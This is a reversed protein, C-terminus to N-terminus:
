PTVSHSTIALGSRRIIQMWAYRGADCPHERGNKLPRDEGLRAAREDWAYEEFAARTMPTERSPVLLGSSLATDVEAVGSLLANDAARAPLGLARLERRLEPAAPDVMVHTIGSPWRRSWDAIRQARVEPDLKLGAPKRWEGVMRWRQEGDETVDDDWAGFAVGFAVGSSADDVGIVVRRPHRDPLPEDPPVAWIEGAASVWLGLVMRDHMPTGPPWRRELRERYGDPLHPNDDLTSTIVHAGEADVYDRKLWHAPGAPNTAIWLQPAVGVRLRSEVMAVVDPHVRAAEDIAAAAWNAGAIATADRATAGVRMEFHRGRWWFETANGKPATVGLHRELDRVWARLRAHSPAILGCESGEPQDLAFSLLDHGVLLTKGTGVPGVAIHASVSPNVRHANAMLFQSGAAPVLRADWAGGADEIASASADDGERRHREAVQNLTGILKQQVDAARALAIPARNATAIGIAAEAASRASTAMEVLSQGLVVAEGGPPTAALRLAVAAAAADDGAM